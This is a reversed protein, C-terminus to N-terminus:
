FPSVVGTLMYGAVKFGAKLLTARSAANQINCRAAPVRGARYCQKKLEQLLYSGFGKHRQDARVELYLDAFPHNYHLMFGGTAVIEGGTELVFDGVPELKHSFVTDEEWRSRFTAGPVVHQTLFGDDFLIAEAHINTSFEFLMSSLFNDNSQCEVFTAGSAALLERFCLHAKQRYPSIVYFEFIADRDALENKGKISGYGIEEGDATLLYSDSWGREHCAHYRIQFNNEQLFLTRLSQIAQIGTKTAECNM